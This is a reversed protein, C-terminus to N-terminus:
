FECSSWNREAQLMCSAKANGVCIYKSACAYLQAKTVKTESGQNLLDQCLCASIESNVSILVDEKKKHPLYFVLILFLIWVGVVGLNDLLSILQKGFWKLNELNLKIWGEEKKIKKIPQSPYSVKLTPIFQARIFDMAEDKALNPVVIRSGKWSKYWPSCTLRVGSEGVQVQVLILNSGKTPHEYIIGLEAFDSTSNFVRIEKNLSQATSTIKQVVGIVTDPFEQEIM